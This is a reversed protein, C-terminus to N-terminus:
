LPCCLMRQVIFRTLKFFGLSQYNLYNAAQSCHQQRKLQAINEITEFVPFHHYPALYLNSNKLFSLFYVPQQITPFNAKTPTLNFRSFFLHVRSGPNLGLSMWINEIVRIEPYYSFPVPRAINISYTLTNDQFSFRSLHSNYAKLPLLIHVWPRM